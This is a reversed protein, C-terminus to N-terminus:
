EMLGGFPPTRNIAGHSLLLKNRVQGFRALGPWASRLRARASRSGLQASGLLPCASSLRTRAVERGELHERQMHEVKKSVEWISHRSKPGSERRAM